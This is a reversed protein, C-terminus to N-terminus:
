SICKIIRNAWDRDNKEIILVKFGNRIGEVEVGKSDDIHLDIDFAPPYKSCNINRNKLEKQNSQENIIFDPRIGYSFLQFRIWYKSRLSTTYIGVNHGSLQLENFLEKAGDRILEVNVVRQLFSRKVSPFEEINLPILTNDLDFSIRM